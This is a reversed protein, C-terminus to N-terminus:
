YHLEEDPTAEEVSGVVVGGGVSRGFLQPWKLAWFNVPLVLLWFHEPQKSSHLLFTGRPRCAGLVQNQPAADPLGFLWMFGWSGSISLKSIVTYYFLVM